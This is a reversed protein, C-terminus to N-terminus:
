RVFSMVNLIVWEIREAFQSGLRLRNTSYGNISAQDSRGRGISRLGTGTQINLSDILFINVTHIHYFYIPKVEENDDSPQITTSTTSSSSTASAPTRGFILATAKVAQVNPLIVM